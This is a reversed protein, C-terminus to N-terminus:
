KLQKLRAYAQAIKTGYQEITSLVQKSSLANAKDFLVQHGKGISVLTQTYIRCAERKAAIEDLKQQEIERVLEVAATQGREAMATSIIGDFHKRAAEEEDDLSAVFAQGVINTLGAIVTQLHPNSQQIM